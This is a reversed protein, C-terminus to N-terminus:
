APLGRRDRPSPAAFGLLAVPARGSAAPQAGAAGASASSSPNSIVISVAGTEYGVQVSAVKAASHRLVNTLSEQVVRYCALDAAATLEHAPGSIDLTIEVGAEVMRQRLEELRGLGPVPSRPAEPEYRRVVALTARLEELAETSTRSIATLATEAQEPKKALVHLAVDAQMKIAALGHGVVDHVEQAVRLREDYAHQRVTEARERDVAERTLRVTVGLAFPVVVWASGPALGLLGPLSAGNTFLHTLMLALAPVAVVAARRLPLHRAVTYVAVAFSFLIPGYPYGLLLYTTTLVAVVALTVLPWRRRVVIALAAAIVLTLARTDVAEDLQSLHGAGLTGFVGVVILVAAIAADGLYTVV